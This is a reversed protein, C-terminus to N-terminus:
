RGTVRASRSSVKKPTVRFPSSVGWTLLSIELLVRTYQAPKVLRDRIPEPYTWTITCAQGRGPEDIVVPGLLQTSTWQRASGGSTHWEITTAQM